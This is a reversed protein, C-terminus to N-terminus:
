TFKVTIIIRLMSATYAAIVQSSFIACNKPLYYGNVTPHLSLCPSFPSVQHLKVNHLTASIPWKLQGGKTDAPPSYSNASPITPQERSSSSIKYCQVM